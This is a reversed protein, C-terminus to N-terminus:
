IERWSSIEEEERKFRGIRDPRKKREMLGEPWRRAALRIQLVMKAM